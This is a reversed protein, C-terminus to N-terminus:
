ATACKRLAFSSAHRLAVDCDQFAVIRVAGALDHAYPNVLLDLGGWFGIVVDNWNGYLMAHLNSGSNQTLTKPLQNSVFAGYGNLPTPEAGWLMVSDTSAVKATQKMYGRLEPTCAYALAGVDANDAAVATEMDVIAGWDPATGDGTTDVTNINSTNIIGTPQNSQGTGAIAALDIGLAITEVLEMRAMAEVDVSSQMMFKRSLETAAGGTHPQMLVQGFAQDSATLTGNTGTGEAVWYFTCGGTKSPIAFDGVLGTLVRAGAGGRYVVLKNRLMEIFNEPHLETAVLYGGASDTGVRGAAQIPQPAVQVDYPLYFGKPSKGLAQAQADSAERELSNQQWWTGDTIARLARLLSYQRVEGTSMGISAQQTRNARPATEATPRMGQAPQTLAEVMKARNIQDDLNDIDKLLVDIKPNLDGANAETIETQLERLTGIKEERKAMLDFSNM